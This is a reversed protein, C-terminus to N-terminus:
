SLANVRPDEIDRSGLMLPWIYNSFGSLIPSAYWFIMTLGHMSYLQNYAEPSLLTQNPQALQARMVAAELGGIILLLFATVLYRKGIEKHDVSSLWGRIGPGTKWLRELAEAAGADERAIVPIRYADSPTM